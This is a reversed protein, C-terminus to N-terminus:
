ACRALHVGMYRHRSFSYTHYHRTSSGAAMKGACAISSNIEFASRHCRSSGSRCCSILPPIRTLPRRPSGNHSRSVLPVTHHARISITNIKRAIARVVLLELLEAITSSGSQDLDTRTGEEGQRDPTSGSAHRGHVQVKELKMEQARSIDCRGNRWDFEKERGVQKGDLADRLEDGGTEREIM